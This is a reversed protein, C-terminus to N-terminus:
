KNKLAADLAAELTAIKAELTSIRARDSDKEISTSEHRKQYAVYMQAMKSKLIENFIYGGIAGVVFFSIAIYILKTTYVKQMITCFVETSKDINNYIFVILGCLILIEILIYMYKIITNKM